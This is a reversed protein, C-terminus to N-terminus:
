RLISPNLSPDTLGEFSGTLHSLEGVNLQHIYANRIRRWSELESAPGSWDVTLGFDRKLTQLWGEIKPGNTIRPRRSGRLEALETACEGLATELLAFGYAVLSGLLLLPTEDRANLIEEDAVDRSENLYPSAEPDSAVWALYESRAQDLEVLLEPSLALLRAAIRRLNRLRYEAVMLAISDSRPQWDGEAFLDM